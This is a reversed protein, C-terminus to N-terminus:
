KFLYFSNKARPSYTFLCRSPNLRLRPPASQQSLAYLNPHAARRCPKTREWPEGSLPSLSIGVWREAGRAPFASSTCYSTYSCIRSWGRVLPKRSLLLGLDWFSRPISILHTFHPCPSLLSSCSAPPKM